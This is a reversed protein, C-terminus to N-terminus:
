KGRPRRILGSRLRTPLYPRQGVREQLALERQRRVAEGGTIISTGDPICFGDECRSWVVGFRQSDTALCPLDEILELRREVFSAGQEVRALVLLSGLRESSPQRDVWRMRARRLKRAQQVALESTLGFLRPRVHRAGSRRCLGGPSARLLLKRLCFAQDSLRLRLELLLLKPSAM